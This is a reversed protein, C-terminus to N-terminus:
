AVVGLELVARQDDDCLTIGNKVCRKARTRVLRQRDPSLEAFADLLEEKYDPQFPNVYSYAGTRIVKKMQSIMELRERDDYYNPEMRGGVIIMEECFDLGNWCRKIKGYLLNAMANGPEQLLEELTRQPETPHTM